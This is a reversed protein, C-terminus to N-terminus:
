VEPKASDITTHQESIVVQAALKSRVRFRWGILGVLLSAILVACIAMAMQGKKLRARGIPQGTSPHILRGPQTWLQNIIFTRVEDHYTLWYIGAAFSILFLTWDPIWALQGKALYVGFAISVITAAIRAGIKRVYAVGRFQQGSFYASFSII